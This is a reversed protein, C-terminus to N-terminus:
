SVPADCSGGDKADDGPIMSGCSLATQEFIKESVIEPEEYKEKKTEKENM